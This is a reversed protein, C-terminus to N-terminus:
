TSLSVVSLVTRVLVHVERAVIAVGCLLTRDGLGSRTSLLVELYQLHLVPALVFVLTPCAALARLWDFAPSLVTHRMVLHHVPVSARSLCYCVAFLVMWLQAARRPLLSCVLYLCISRHQSGVYKILCNARLPWDGSVGM